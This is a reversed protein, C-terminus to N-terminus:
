IHQGFFLIYKVCKIFPSPHAGQRAPSHDHPSAQCRHRGAGAAPQRSHHQVPVVSGGVPCFACICTDAALNVTSPRVRCLNATHCRWSTSSRTLFWRFILILNLYLLVAGASMKLCSDSFQILIWLDGRLTQDRTSVSHQPRPSPPTSARIMTWTVLFSPGRKKLSQDWICESTLLPCM